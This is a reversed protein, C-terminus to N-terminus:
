CKRPLARPHAHARLACCCFLITSWRFLYLATTFLLGNSCTELRYKKLSCGTCPVKFAGRDRHKTNGRHPITRAVPLTPDRMGLWSEGNFADRTDVLMSCFLWLLFSNLIARQWSAIAFALNGRTVDGSVARRAGWALRTKRIAQFVAHLLHKSPAAHTRVLPTPSFIWQHITIALTTCNSYM